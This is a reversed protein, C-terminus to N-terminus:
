DRQRFLLSQKTSFHDSLLSPPEKGEFAALPVPGHKSLETLISDFNERIRDIISPYLIPSDLDPLGTLKSTHAASREFLMGLLDKVKPVEFGFTIHLSTERITEASHLVMPDMYLVDGPRLEIQVCNAESTHDEAVRWLKTGTLQLIIIKQPDRHPRFGQSQPPTMYMNAECRAALMEQFCGCLKACKYSIKDIENLAITYGHHFLHHVANIAEDPSLHHLSVQPDGARAGTISQPRNNAYFWVLQDIDIELTEILLQDSAVSSFLKYRGDNETLLQAFNVVSCLLSALNNVSSTM